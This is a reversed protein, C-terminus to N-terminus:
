KATEDAVIADILAAAGMGPLVKIGRAEAIPRLDKFKTPLTSIFSSLPTGDRLVAPQPVTGLLRRLVAVPGDEGEIAVPRLMDMMEDREQLAAQMKESPAGIVADAPREQLALTIRQVEAQLAAEREGAEVLQTKLGDAIESGDRDSDEVEVVVQVPWPSGAIHFDLERQEQRFQELTFVGAHLNGGKIGLVKAQETPLRPWRYKDARMKSSLQAFPGPTADNVVLHIRM